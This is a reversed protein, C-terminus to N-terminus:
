NTMRLPAQRAMPPLVSVLHVLDRITHASTKARISRLQTRVTSIRVGHRSAIETPRLGKCVQALVQGEASTLGRERAFLTITSDDCLQLKAFVLLACAAGDAGATAAPAPESVRAGSTLGGLSAAALPVVAVPVAAPGKGLCLLGRLGKGARQLVTRLQPADAPRATMLQGHNLRLGTDPAPTDPNSGDAALLVRASANAFHVHASSADLAVLGYDVQNIAAHLLDVEQPAAAQPAARLPSTIRSLAQREAPALM